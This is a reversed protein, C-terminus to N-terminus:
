VGFRCVAIDFGLSGAGLPLRIGGGAGSGGAGGRQRAHGRGGAGASRHAEQSLHHQEGGLVHGFVGVPVVEERYDLVYYRPGDEADEEQHDEDKQVVAVNDLQPGRTREAARRELQHGVGVRDLGDLLANVYLEDGRVHVLAHGLLDRPVPLLDLVIGPQLLVLLVVGLLLRLQIPHLLLVRLPLGLPVRRQTQVLPAPAALAPPSAAIAADLIQAVRIM